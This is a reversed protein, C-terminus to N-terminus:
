RGFTFKVDDFLGKEVVIFRGIKDVDPCEKLMTEAFRLHFYLVKDEDEKTVVGKKVTEEFDDLCKRMQEFM